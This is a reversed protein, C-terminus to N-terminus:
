SASARRGALNVDAADTEAVRAAEMNQSRPGSM